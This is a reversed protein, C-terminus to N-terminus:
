RFIALPFGELNVDGKIDSLEMANEKDPLEPEEEMLKFVREAAAMASQLESIINAMENIPGSFKRSYQVFSSINGLSLSGFLYLIAGFVTILSLSLNNIFIVTPGTLSGYYEAKYYADVTDTNLYDFRDM